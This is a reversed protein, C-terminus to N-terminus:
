SHLGVDARMSFRVYPVIIGGAAAMTRYPGIGVDARVASEPMTVLASALAYLAPLGPAKRPVYRLAISPPVLWAKRRSRM